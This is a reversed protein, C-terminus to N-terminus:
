RFDQWRLLRTPDEPACQYPQTAADGTAPGPAPQACASFYDASAPNRFERLRAALHGARRLDGAAAWGEAWAVMLRTDLLYHAARAFAPLEKEPRPAITAAAYDAHHGFLLSRQADTIREALPTPAHADFVAVVRSYDAVTGVAAIVLVASM